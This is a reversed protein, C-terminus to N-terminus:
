AIQGEDLLDAADKYEDLAKLYEYGQKIFNSAANDVSPIFNYYKRNVYNNTNALDKNVAIGVCISCNDKNGGIGDIKIYANNLIIGNDLNINKSLAM